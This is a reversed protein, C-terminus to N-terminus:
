YKAVFNHESIILEPDVKIPSVIPIENKPFDIIIKNDEIYDTYYGFGLLRELSLYTSYIYDFM